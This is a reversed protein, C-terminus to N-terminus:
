RDHDAHCRCRYRGTVLRCRCARRRLVNRRTGRLCGHAGDAVVVDDLGTRVVHGAPANRGFQVAVRSLQVPVLRCDAFLQCPRRPGREGGIVLAEPIGDLLIGLWIAIPAGTHGKLHSAMAAASPILGGTDLSTVAKRTWRAAQNPDFAQRTELYKEISDSQLYTRVADALVRCRGLLADFDRKRIVWLETDDADVIASVTHHAGTVFSFGGFVANAEIEVPRRAPQTPDILAVRGCEVIYLREAKENRHFLTEGKHHRKNIIVDAVQALEDRPLDKFLPFRSLDHALGVFKDGDRNMPVASSLLAGQDLGHLAQDRWHRIQDGTLSHRDRLYTQIAETQLFDGIHRAFEPTTEVASKLADITLVWLKTPETAVAFTARPSETLCGMHGFVDGAGLTQYPTMGKDPDLLQVGGADIIYLRESPDQHRYITDGQAVEMIFTRNALDKIVATSLGELFPARRLSPLAKALRERQRKQLYLIVTSSKRLFGGKNNVLENLLRFLLGGAICGAALIYFHGRELASGVLDIALAALLAGGGFAMLIAISRDGPTWIRTTLTGLPLSFASVLGMVFAAITVSEIISM